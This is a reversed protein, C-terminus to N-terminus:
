FIILLFIDLNNVGIDKVQETINWFIEQSYCAVETECRRFVLYACECKSFDRRSYTGIIFLNDM